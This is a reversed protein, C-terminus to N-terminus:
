RQKVRYHTDGPAIRTRRTEAASPFRRADSSSTRRRPDASTPAGTSPRWDPRNAWHHLIAASSNASRNEPERRYVRDIVAGQQVPPFRPPADPSWRTSPVSASLLPLDASWKVNETKSFKEPLGTEPSSGDQNPGRWQPWNAAYAQALSIALVLPLLRTPTM